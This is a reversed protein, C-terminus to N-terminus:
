LLFIKQVFFSTFWAVSPKNTARTPITTPQDAWQCTVTVVTLLSFCVANLGKGGGTDDDAPTRSWNRGSKGRPIGHGTHSGHVKQQKPVTYVCVISFLLQQLTGPAPPAVGGRKAYRGTPALVCGCVCVCVFVHVLSPTNDVDCLLNIICMLTYSSVFTLAGGGGGCM